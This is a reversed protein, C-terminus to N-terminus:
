WIVDKESQIHQILDMEALRTWDSRHKMGTFRFASGMTASLALFLSGEVM